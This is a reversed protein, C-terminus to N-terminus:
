VLSLYSCADTSNDYFGICLSSPVPMCAAPQTASDALRQARRISSVQHNGGMSDRLHEVEPDCHSSLSLGAGSADNHNGICPAHRQLKVAGWPGYRRVKREPIRLTRCSSNAASALEAPRSAGVRLMPGGTHPAFIGPRQSGSRVILIFAQASDRRQLHQCLHPGSDVGEGPDRLGGQRRRRESLSSRRSSRGM